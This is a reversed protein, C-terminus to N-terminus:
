RAADPLTGSDFRRDAILSKFTTLVAPASDLRWDHINNPDDATQAINDFWSFGVISPDNLFGNLTNSIWDSKQATYDVGNLAQVAGIEAFFMPKDTIARIQAISTGFNSAFDTPQGVKRWYVTAGVWDVYQDGPYDAAFTTLGRGGLNDPRGPSWLWIVDQNAGVQNFINWVHQWAAVYKAPTNNYMGASWPYWNGNMEHDFRIAIPLNSRVIDGAYKYLYPDLSGDIIRSLSYTPDNDNVSSKSMWTMVPLAGRSWAAQVKTPDFDSDWYSFYGLTSPAKGLEASLANYQNTAGPLGNQSVGFYDLPPEVLAAKTVATAAPPLYANAPVSAPRVPDVPLMSCALGDGNNPGPAGDLGYPDSLNALYAAQADQQWVFQSCFKKVPAVVPVAVSHVVSTKGATKVYVTRTRVISACRTASRSTSTPRKIATVTAKRPSNTGDSGSGSATSPVNTPPAKATTGGPTQNNPALSSTSSGTKAVPSLYIASGIALISLSLVSALLRPSTSTKRWLHPNPSRM